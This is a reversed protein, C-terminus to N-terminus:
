EMTVAFSTGNGLYKVQKHFLLKYTVVFSRSFYNREFVATSTVSWAITVKTEFAISYKEPYQGQLTWYLFNGKLTVWPWRFHCPDTPYMRTVILKGTSIITNRDQITELTNDNIVRGWVVNFVIEPPIHLAFLRKSMTQSWKFNNLPRYMGCEHGRHSDYQNTLDYV